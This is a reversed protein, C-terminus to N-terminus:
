ARSPVIVKQCLVRPMSASPNIAADMPKVSSSNSYGAQPLHHAALASGCASSSIGSAGAPRPSRLRSVQPQDARMPQNAAVATITTNHLTQQVARPRVDNEVEGGYAV